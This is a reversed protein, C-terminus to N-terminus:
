VEPVAEPTPPPPQGGSGSPPLATVGTMAEDLQTRLKSVIRKQSPELADLAETAIAAVSGLRILLDRRELLDDAREVGIWDRLKDLYPKQRQEFRARADEPSLDHEDGNEDVLMVGRLLRVNAEREEQEIETLLKHPYRAAVARGISETTPWPVLLEQDQMFAPATRIDDQALGTLQALAPVDHVTTTGASDANFEAIELPVLTIFVHEATRRDLRPPDWAAVERTRRDLQVYDHRDEWRVELRSPAVWRREGQWQDHLLEIRVRVPRKDGIALVAAEHFVGSDRSTRYAWLEGVEM